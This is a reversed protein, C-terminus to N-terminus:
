ITTTKSTKQNANIKGTVFTSNIHTVHIQKQLRVLKNHPSTQKCLFTVSKGLPLRKYKDIDLEENEYKMQKEQRSKTINDNPYHWRSSSFIISATEVNYSFFYNMM